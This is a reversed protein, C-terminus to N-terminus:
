RFSRSIDKIQIKNASHNKEFPSCTKIQRTFNSKFFLLYFLLLKSGSALSDDCPWTLRATTVQPCSLCCPSISAYCLYVSCECFCTSLLLLDFLFLRQGWKESYKFLTKSYVRRSKKTKKRIYTMYYIPSYLWWKMVRKWVFFDWVFLCM